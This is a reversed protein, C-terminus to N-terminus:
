ADPQPTPSLTPTPTPAAPAPPPVLYAVFSCAMSVAITISLVWILLRTSKRNYHNM